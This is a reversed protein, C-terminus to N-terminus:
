LYVFSQPAFNLDFDSLSLPNKYLATDRVKNAYAIDRNLFYSDFFSKTIGSDQKTKEWLAQPQTELREILLKM